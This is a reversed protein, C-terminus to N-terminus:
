GMPRLSPFSSLYHLEQPVLKSLALETLRKISVQVSITMERSGEIRSRPGDMRTYRPVHDLCLLITTKLIAPRHLLPPPGLWPFTSSSAMLKLWISPPILSPALSEM